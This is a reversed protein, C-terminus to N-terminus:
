KPFYKACLPYESINATILIYFTLIAIWYILFNNMMHCFWKAMIFFNDYQQKLNYLKRHLFKNLTCADSDFFDM